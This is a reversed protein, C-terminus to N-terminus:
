HPLFIDVIPNRWVRSWFPKDSEAPRRVLRVSAFSSSKPLERRVRFGGGEREREGQREISYLRM